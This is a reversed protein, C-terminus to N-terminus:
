SHTMKKKKRKSRPTAVAVPYLRAAESREKATIPTHDLYILKPLSSCVFYRYDMYSQYDGGNFYSPAATNNMMSLIKLNPCNEAITSIFYGLNDIRNHNLWLTHLQPLRPMKVQSTVLNNDLVLSELVELDILFRLDCVKNNSMDLDTLTHRCKDLVEPPLKTLGRYAVSLRTPMVRKTQGRHGEAM